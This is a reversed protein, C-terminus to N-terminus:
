AYEAAPRVYLAARGNRESVGPVYDIVARSEKVIADCARHRLAAATQFGEKRAAFEM